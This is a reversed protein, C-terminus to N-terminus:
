PPNSSDQNKIALKCDECLNNEFQTGIDPFAGCIRCAWDNEICLNQWALEREQSM